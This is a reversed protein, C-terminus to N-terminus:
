LALLLCPSFTPVFNIFIVYVYKNKNVVLYVWIDSFEANRDQFIM